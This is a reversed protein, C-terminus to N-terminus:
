HATELVLQEVEHTRLAAVDHARHIRRAREVLARELLRHGRELGRELYAVAGARVVEGLRGRSRVVGRGFFRGLYLSDTTAPPWFLIRRRRIRDTCDVFFIVRALSSMAALRM